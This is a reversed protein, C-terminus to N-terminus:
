VFQALTMYGHRLETQKERETLPQRVHTAATQGDQVAAFAKKWKRQFHKQTQQALRKDAATHVHQSLPKRPIHTESVSSISLM